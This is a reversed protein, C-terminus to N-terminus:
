GNALPLRLGMTVLPPLDDCIAKNLRNRLGAGLRDKEKTPSLCLFLCVKDLSFLIKYQCGGM